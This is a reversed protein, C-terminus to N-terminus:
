DSISFKCHTVNKDRIETEIMDVHLYGFSKGFGSFLGHTIACLESRQQDIPIPCKLKVVFQGTKEVELELNHTEEIQISEESVLYKHWQKTIRQAAQVGFQQASEYLDTEVLETNINDDIMPDMQNLIPYLSKAASLVMQSNIVTSLLYDPMAQLFFRAMAERATNDYISTLFYPPKYKRFVRDLMPMWNEFINTELEKRKNPDYKHIFISILPRQPSPDADVQELIKSFYEESTYVETEHCDVLFIIGFAGQFYLPDSLYQERFQAQGGLDNILLKGKSAEDDVKKKSVGITATIKELKEIKWNEFFQYYVSSKGVKGLGILFFKTRQDKNRKKYISLPKLLNKEKKRVGRKFSIADSITKKLDSEIKEQDDTEQIRLTTYLSEIVSEFDKPKDDLEALLTFIYEEKPVFFVPKDNILKKKTRRLKKEKWEEIVSTFYEELQIVEEDTLNADFSLGFIKEKSIAHFIDVRQLM